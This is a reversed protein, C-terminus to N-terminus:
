RVLTISGSEKVVQMRKDAELTTEVMWVYTGTSLNEQNPNKGDWGMNPDNTTFLLNGWRDFVM